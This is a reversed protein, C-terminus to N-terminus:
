DGRAGFDDVEVIPATQRPTGIGNRRLAANNGSVTFRASEGSVNPRPDASLRGFDDADQAFTARSCVLAAASAVVLSVLYPRWRGRPSREARCPNLVVGSNKSPM